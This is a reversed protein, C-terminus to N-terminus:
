PKLTFSTAVFEGGQVSGAVLATKTEECLGLAHADIKAGTVLYPTGDVKVALKCGQVGKMQFMCSGCGAELQRADAPVAASAAAPVSEAAHAEPSTEATCAVLTALGALVLVPAFRSV